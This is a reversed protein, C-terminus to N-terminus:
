EKTRMWVRMLRSMHLKRQVQNEWCSRKEELLQQGIQLELYLQRFQSERKELEHQQWDLSETEGAFKAMENTLNQQEKRLHM